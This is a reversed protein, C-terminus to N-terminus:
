RSGDDEESDTNFSCVSQNEHNGELDAASIYFNSIGEESAVINQTKPGEPNSANINTPDDGIQSLLSDILSPASVNKVIRHLANDLLSRGDRPPGIYPQLAPTDSNETEFGLQGGSPDRGCDSLDEM